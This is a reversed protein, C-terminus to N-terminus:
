SEIDDDIVTTDRTESCLSEIFQRMREPPQLREVPLTERLFRCGDEAAAINKRSLDSEIMEFFLMYYNSFMMRTAGDIVVSADNVGRYEYKEVLNRRLVDLDTPLDRMPTVRSALGERRLYPQLWALAGGGLTATCYVPRTWANTRILDLVVRDQNMIYAGGINPPIEFRVSDPLALTDPMGFREGPGNLPVAVVTDSWSALQAIDAGVLSIPLGPDHRKVLNLYWPTNLLPLNVVSVDPRVKEVQQLYWLPFTDNDGQTFLIAEPPLTALINRAFDAAFFRQSGDVAAYNRTAQAVPVVLLVATLGVALIARTWSRCQTIYGGLAGAGFAIWVGFLLYSPLYHRYMSRFYNSPVNFYAVAGLSALLFLVTVGCALRANRRWLLGFGVLGLLLPLFGVIGLPGDANAFNHSFGNVWDMVQESLFDGKRPFFSVLFGGGLQKLSVYDWFRGLTDPTNFNLYPDLRAIPILLLHFGLGAAFGGIGALWTRVSLLTRADRLLIWVLLGPALLLNTRHVSVDLGFLLTVILLWLLRASSDTEHWWRLMSAVILVTFLPTWVYVTYKVAYQWLTEGLGFGLCGVMLGALVVTAARRKLPRGDSNDLAGLRLATLGTFVVTLAAVAGALLNLSLIDSLGLPLKVVIWGVITPILAGPPSQVGLCVSSLAQQSNTWWDISRYATIWYLTTAVAGIAGAILLTASLSLGRRVLFVLDNSKPKM